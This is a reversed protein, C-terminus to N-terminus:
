FIVVVLFNFYSIHEFYECNKLLGNIVTIIRALYLGLFYEKEYMIFNSIIAYKTIQSYSNLRVTSSKMLISPDLLSSGSIKDPPPIFYSLKYTLRLFFDPLHYLSDYWYVPWHITAVLLDTSIESSNKRLSGSNFSLIGESYKLWLSFYWSATRLDHTKNLFILSHCFM